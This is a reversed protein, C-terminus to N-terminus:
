SVSGGNIKTITYTERSYTQGEKQFTTRKEKIRVKDGIEFTEKDNIIDFTKKIKSFMIELEEEENVEKPEKNLSTHYTSNYNKILKDLVDVWKVSNTHTFYKNILGKM